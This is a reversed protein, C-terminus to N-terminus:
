DQDHCEAYTKGRQQQCEEYGFDALDENSEIIAVLCEKHEYSAHFDGDFIYARYMVEEGVEITEGCWSCYHNKRCVVLKEKLGTYSM